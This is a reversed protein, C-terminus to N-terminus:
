RNSACKSYNFSLRNVCLTKTTMKRKIYAIDPCLFRFIFLFPMKIEWSINTSGNIAKFGESCRM